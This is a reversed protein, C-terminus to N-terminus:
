YIKLCLISDLDSFVQNYFNWMQLEREATLMQQSTTVGINGSRTHTTETEHALNDTRTSEISDDTNTVTETEDEGSDTVTQTVENHGTSEDHDSATASNFGYVKNHQEADSESGTTEVKGHTLTETSTNNGIAQSENQVTGTNSGEEHITETMNYNEIPDYEATVTAYLKSWKVDFMSDIVSALKQKNASSITGTLYHQTRGYVDTSTTESVSSLLSEVLPSILKNGSHNFFYQIDLDDTSVPFEYILDAFLSTMVNKLRLEPKM